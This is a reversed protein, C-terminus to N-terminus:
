DQWLVNERLEDRDLFPAMDELRSSTMRGDPLIRSSLKPEFPQEHDLCVHAVVPGASGLVEPLMSSLNAADIRVAQLGYAEAVKVIDPFTVGSAPSEGVFRGFFASQTQRISSYGGNDLVFLKIPLQHHVVTQLEQLNMQLSGDGAVCIVRRARDAV